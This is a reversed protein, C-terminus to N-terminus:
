LLLTNFLKDIVYIPVIISMVGLATFKFTNSAEVDLFKRGMCIVVVDYIPLFELLTLEAPMLNELIGIIAMIGLNYSCFLGVYERNVLGDATLRPLIATIISSAIFYSVSYKLFEVVALVTLSAFNPRLSFFADFYVTLAAIAALPLLGHLLSHRSNEAAAAVDEWGRSPSMALQLILRLFHLM